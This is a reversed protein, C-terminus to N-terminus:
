ADRPAPPRAPSSSFSATPASALAAIASSRARQVSVADDHAAEIVVFDNGLGEYKDFGLAGEM